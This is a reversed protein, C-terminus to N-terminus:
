VKKFNILLILLPGDLLINDYDNQKHKPAYKCVFGKDMSDVPTDSNM